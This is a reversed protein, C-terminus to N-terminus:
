EASKRRRSAIGATLLALLALAGPEPVQNAFLNWGIADMALIDNEQPGYAVGQIGYPNMLNFQGPAFHSAQYGTKGMYAGDSFDEVKTKCGDVSMYAGVGYRVDMVGDTDTCRLLDLPTYIAYKELAFENDLLGGFTEGNLYAFSVFDMDDVGSVFGLAHGIEHAAIAAFDVQDAGIGNGRDFDFYDSYFGNFSINADVGGAGLLGLAKANATNMAMFFNNNGCAVSAGPPCVNADNDFREGGDLTNSRFSLLPGAQLNAVVSQDTKGLAGASLANRVDGYAFTEVSSGASGLVGNNGDDQFSIDITVTVNNSLLQTWAQAGLQFAALKEASMGGPTRDNFQITLASAPAAIAIMSAALAIARLPSTLTKSM